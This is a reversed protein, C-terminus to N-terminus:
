DNSRLVIASLKESYEGNGPNISLLKTYMQSAKTDRGTFFLFKAFYELVILETDVSARAMKNDLNLFYKKKEDLFPFVSNVDFLARYVNRLHSIEVGGLQLYETNEQDQALTMKDILRRATFIVQNALALNSLSIGLYCIAKLFLADLLM